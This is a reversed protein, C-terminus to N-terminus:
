GSAREAGAGRAPGALAECAYGKKGKGRRDQVPRGSPAVAGPHGSPAVADAINKAEAEVLLRPELRLSVLEANFDLM